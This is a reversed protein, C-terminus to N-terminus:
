AFESLCDWCSSRMRMASCPRGISIKQRVSPRGHPFSEGGREASNGSFTSGAILFSSNGDGFIAGKFCCVACPLVCLDTHTFNALTLEATIHMLVPVHCLTLAVHTHQSSAIPEHHFVMHDRYYRV